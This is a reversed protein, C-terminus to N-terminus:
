RLIIPVSESLNSIEYDTLSSIIDSIVLCKIVENSMDLKEWWVNKFSPNRGKINLFDRKMEEPKEFYIECLGKIRDENIKDARYIGTHIKNKVIQAINYKIKEVKDSFSIFQKTKDINPKKVKKLKDGSNEVLDAIFFAYLHVYNKNRLYTQLETIALPRESDKYYRDLEECVEDITILNSESRLGEILDSIIWAIDDAYRVVQAEITANKNGHLEIPTGGIEQKFEFNKDFVFNKNASHRWIGFLTERTFEKVYGGCLTLLRVGNRGHMFIEELPDNGSTRYKLYSNKKTDAIAKLTNDRPVDCLKEALWGRLATEGVHAFPTHGIDHGIAIAETLDENLFLSRSISRAILSVKQTHTLRNEVRGSGTFLQTKESLRSFFSSYMIQDRDREFITRWKIKDKLLVNEGNFIDELYKKAPIGDSMTADLSKTAYWKLNAEIRKIYKQYEDFGNTM